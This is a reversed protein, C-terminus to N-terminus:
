PPPSGRPREDFRAANAPDGFSLTTAFDVPLSHVARLTRDCGEALARTGSRADSRLSLIPTLVSARHGVAVLVSCGFATIVVPDQTGGRVGIFLSGNTESELLEAAAQELLLLRTLREM